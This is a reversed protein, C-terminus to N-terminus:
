EWTIGGDYILERVVLASNRDVISWIDSHAACRRGIVPMRAYFM